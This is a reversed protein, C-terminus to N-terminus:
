KWTWRGMFLGRRSTRSVVLWENTAGESFSSFFLKGGKRMLSLFTSPLVDLTRLLKMKKAKKPTAFLKTMKWFFLFFLFFFMLHPHSRSIFAIVSVQCDIWLWNATFNWVDLSEKESLDIWPCSSGAQIMRAFAERGSRYHSARKTCAPLYNLCRVHSHSRREHWKVRDRKWKTKIRKVVVVMSPKLSHSSPSAFFFFSRAQCEILVCLSCCNSLTRPKKTKRERADIEIATRLRGLRSNGSKISRRFQERSMFKLQKLKEDRGWRKVWFHYVVIIFAM